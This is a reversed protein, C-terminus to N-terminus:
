EAAESVSKMGNVLRGLADANTKMEDDSLSMMKAVLACCRSLFELNLLRLAELANRFREISDALQEKSVKADTFVALAGTLERYIAPWYGSLQRM